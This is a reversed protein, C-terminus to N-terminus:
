KKRKLREMIEKRYLYVAILLALIILAVTGATKGFKAEFFYSIFMVGLFLLLVLIFIALSARKAVGQKEEAENEPQCSEDHQELKELEKDKM